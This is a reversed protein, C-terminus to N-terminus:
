IAAGSAFAEEMEREAEPQVRPAPKGVEETFGFDDTTARAASTLHSVTVLPGREDGTIRVTTLYTEGVSMGYDLNKKYVIAGKRVVQGQANEFEITCNAFPTGNVNELLSDSVAVLKSQFQAEKYKSNDNPNTKEVFQFNM